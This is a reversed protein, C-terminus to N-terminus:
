LIMKEIPGVLIGTAGVNKLKEIVEWFVNEPVVSHIAVWNKKNLPLITPSALGPIIEIIKSIATVPANMMIYKTNKAQILSSIRTKLKLIKQKKQNNQLSKPNVILKAESKFIEEFEVLDHTKLTSGTSTLDAIGDAINLYPTVEVGGKFSIIEIKIKRQDFFKKTVKPYSTAIKKNQFDALKKIKSEKPLALVFRCKGFALPMMETVKVSSELIINEGVIGLDAFDDNVLAIIDDDRVLVIEIPLNYCKVFLTRENLEFELGIDKLLQLSKEALRGKKQVAIKLNENKTNM